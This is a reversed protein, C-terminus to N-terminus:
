SWKLVFATHDEERDWRLYWGQTKTEILRGGWPKLEYNAVTAIDWNNLEATKYCAYWFKEFYEVREGWNTAVHVRFKDM